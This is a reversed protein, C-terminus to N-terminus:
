NYRIEQDIVTVIYVGLYTDICFSVKLFSGNRLFFLSSYFTHCSAGMEGIYVRVVDREKAEYICITSIHM